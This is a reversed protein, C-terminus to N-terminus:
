LKKGLNEVLNETHAKYEPVTMRTSASQYEEESLWEGKKLREKYAKAQSYEERMWYIGKKLETIEASLTVVQHRAIYSQFMSWEKHIGYFFVERIGFAVLIIIITGLLLIFGTALMVYVSDLKLLAIVLMAIFIVIAIGVAWGFYRKISWNSEDLTARDELLRDQWQSIVIPYQRIKEDLILLCALQPNDLDIDDTEGYIGGNWGKCLEQEEEPNLKLM